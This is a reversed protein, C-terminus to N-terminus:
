ARGGGRRAGSKRRQVARRAEDLARRGVAIEDAKFNRNRGERVTDKASELESRGRDLERALRSCSKKGESGAEADALEDKAQAIEDEADAIIGNYRIDCREGAIERIRDAVEGVASSYADPIHIM